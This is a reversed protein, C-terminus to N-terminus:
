FSFDSRLHSSTLFCRVVTRIYTLRTKTWRSAVWDIARELTLKGQDVLYCMIIAPSRREGAYCHVLVHEGNSLSAQLLELIERIKLYIEDVSSEGQDPLVIRHYKIGAQQVPKAKCLSIVTNIRYQRLGEPETARISGLYLNPLIMVATPPGATYSIQKVRGIEM